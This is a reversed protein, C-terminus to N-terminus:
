YLSSFSPGIKHWTVNHYSLFLWQHRKPTMITLKSCMEYKKRTNRNHVKFPYINEPYNANLHQKFFLRVSNKNWLFDKYSNPSLYTLYFIFYSPFNWIEENLSIDVKFNMHSKLMSIPHESNPKLLSM